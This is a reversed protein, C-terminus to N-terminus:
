DTWERQLARANALLDHVRGELAGNFFARELEDLLAM